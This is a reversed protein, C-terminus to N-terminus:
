GRGLWFDRNEGSLSRRDRGNWDWDIRSLFNGYPCVLILMSIFLFVGLFVDFVM